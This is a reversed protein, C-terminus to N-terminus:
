YTLGHGFSFLEGDTTERYGPLDSLQEEVARRTGALAFPMRGQPAFKGSLVDLLARDSMGFGAVIAGADRLGSAEDLVFPQRFYVHLVVKSPDGIEAMVQKITDLSPTVQWSQSQAMGTFDLISSEWPLSGGFRLGNDTCTAAGYSVCADAEGYPSEGDLGAMGPVVIPNIHDPNLGTAPSNSAYSGTNINKATVSILAYDHGAASPRTAVNGDTVEYGYGEVTAKTFDGLVYVKAGDELPLVADGDETEQNQLLVASKRQLDLGVERHEASGVVTEAKAEDVYPDEFLGMQFMPTLLREAALTVRQESVLGSEVLDIITQADNFGSLTDTGGNIAAAVREPVSKTELGWARDNIIGTDSNVYGQFGLEDRLLDNVIQESFAMGTQDYTVGDHTVGMPIGYYPMIASVGADIAAEFPELHYGFGGGPYVQTKGFAYHPDLGLEQPGGGPFHKMTLAVSTDPSLSVGSRDVPGQLTEVLSRMIESALDADETFTEHTRYWRPETSLDAMYGYMGRLGISEWEEGMVEAFDEVVSMDGTTPAEGTRLSEEGLAAAAIGAEKPFATFAGASENIGARADPDIHNRANSKYLVPIGLRTKESLEQVRNMYRAAEAPTVSTSAAFGGGGPAACVAKDEGTVVNRFIFRHMNEDNVFRTANPGLTGREKVAPDDAAPGCEANLTDILMLGAKEALTMQGVLDAVREDVPRRWDEYPDLRGNGNLDRFQRQGVTLLPKVRSEVSPANKGGANSHGPPHGSSSGPAAAAGAPVVMSLPVALALLVAGRRLASGPRRTM